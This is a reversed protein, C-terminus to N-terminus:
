QTATNVWTYSTRYYRLTTRTGRGGREITAITALTTCNRGSMSGAVASLVPLCDLLYVGGTPVTILAVTYREVPTMNNAASWRFVRYLESNTFLYGGHHGAWLSQCSKCHSVSLPPKSRHRHVMHYQSLHCHEVPQDCSVFM